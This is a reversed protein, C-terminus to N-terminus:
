PRLVLRRGRGDTLSIEALRAPPPVKPALATLLYRALDAPAHLDPTDLCCADLPALLADLAAELERFDMVVDFADLEQAEVVVEVRYDHGSWNQGPARFVVSLGREVAAQFRKSPSNAQLM